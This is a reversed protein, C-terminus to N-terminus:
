VAPAVSFSSFWAPHWGSGLGAMGKSFAADTVDAVQRGGVSATIRHGIMTVALEVWGSCRPSSPLCVGAALLKEHNNGTSLTWNGTAPRLQLAYGGAASFAFGHGCRGYVALTQNGAGERERAASSNVRGVVRVSFDSWNKDGLLSMPLQGFGNGYSLEIAETTLQSLVQQRQHAGTGGEEEEARLDQAFPDPRVRFIGQIDSLFEPFDNFRVSAAGFNTTYNQPFGVTTIPTPFTGCNNAAGEPAHALRTDAPVEGRRATDQTSLSYVANQELTMDFCCEEEGGGRTSTAAGLKVATANILPLRVPAGRVFRPANPGVSGMPSHTVFLVRHATCVATSMCFRVPNPQAPVAGWSNGYACHSDQNNMTEIVLSFDATSSASSVYGVYTGGVPPPPAPPAPAPAPPVRSGGIWGKSDVPPQQCTGRWCGGGGGTGSSFQWVACAQDNCCAVACAAATTAGGDQQLGACQVSSANAPFQGAATCHTPLPVREPPERSGGVWAKDTSCAARAIPQSGVWCGSGGASKGSPAWQWVACHPDNCCGVACSDPDSHGRSSLGGCQLGSANAAWKQPPCRAGPPPQPSGGAAPLYGSGGSGWPGAKKLLRWGPATVQTTHAISWVTDVLGVGGSWPEGAWILGQGSCALGDMWAWVMDWVILATMNGDVYNRNALKALCRGGNSDSYTSYEESAWLKQPLGWLEEYYPSAAASPEHAVPMISVPYHLGVVRAVKSIDVTANPRLKAAIGPSQYGDGPGADGVVIKTATLGRRDLEARLLVAWEPRWPSENHWGVYSVHVNHVRRAGDVWEAIYAAAATGNVCGVWNTRCDSHNTGAYLWSPFSWPLGYVTINPNRKVAETMMFWEYGSHFDFVGPRPEHSSETGTTSDGEGGIELKIIDLSAGHNPLFLFDLLTSRAPEPYDVLLRPGTGASCGGFGDFEPGVSGPSTDIDIRIPAPTAGGGATKRISQWSLFAFVQVWLRLRQRLQRPLSQYQSSSCAM